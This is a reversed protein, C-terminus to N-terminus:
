TGLKQDSLGTSLVLALHVHSCNLWHVIRVQLPIFRACIISLHAFHLINQDLLFVAVALGMMLNLSAPSLVFHNHMPTLWLTRLYLPGHQHTCQSIPSPMINLNRLVTYECQYNTLMSIPYPTIFLICRTSHTRYGRWTTCLGYCHPWSTGVEAAWTSHEYYPWLSNWSRECM